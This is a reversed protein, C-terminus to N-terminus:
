LQLEMTVSCVRPKIPESPSCSISTPTQIHLHIFLFLMKSLHFKSQDDCM